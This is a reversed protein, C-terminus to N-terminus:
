IGKRVAKYQYESIHKPKKFTKHRFIRYKDSTEEGKELQKLVEKFEETIYKSTM